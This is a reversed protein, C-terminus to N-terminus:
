RGNRAARADYAAQTDLTPYERAAMRGFAAACGETCFDRAIYSEGDWVGAVVNGGYGRRISVIQGNVHRQAEAKTTAPEGHHFSFSNGKGAM